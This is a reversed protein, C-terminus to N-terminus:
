CRGGSSDCSSRRSAGHVCRRWGQRQVDDDEGRALALAHFRGQGLHQLRDRRPRHQRVHDVRRAFQLRRRHVDHVAVAAVLVALRGPAALLRKLTQPMILPVDGYLVLVQAGDPVDPM